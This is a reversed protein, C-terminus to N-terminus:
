HKPLVIQLNTHIYVTKILCAQINERVLHRDLKIHKIGEHFATNSAIHIVAEYLTIFMYYFFSIVSWTLSLKVM